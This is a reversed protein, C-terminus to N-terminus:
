TTSKDFTRLTAIEQRLREMEIEKRRLVARVDGSEAPGSNRDAPASKRVAATKPSEGSLPTLFELGFCFGMRNRVVAAIRAGGPMQFEIDMLDGPKLPAGAYLTMGGESMEIGRGQFTLKADARPFVRVPLEVPHRPWRRTNVPSPM